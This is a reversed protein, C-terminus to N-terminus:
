NIEKIIEEFNLKEDTIKIIEEFSLNDSLTTLIAKIKNSITEKNEWTSYKNECTKNLTTFVIEEIYYKYKSLETGIEIFFLEIQDKLTEFEESSKINNIREDDLKRLKKQYIEFIYEHLNDIAFSQM